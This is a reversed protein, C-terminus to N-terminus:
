IGLYMKNNSTSPNLSHYTATLTASSIYINRLTKVEVATSFLVHLQMEM